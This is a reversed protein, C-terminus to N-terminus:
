IRTGDILEMESEEYIDFCTDCTISVCMWCKSWPWIPDLYSLRMPSACGKVNVIDGVKFKNIEKM